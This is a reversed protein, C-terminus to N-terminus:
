WTQLGENRHKLCILVIYFLITKNPFPPSCPIRSSNTCLCLFYLIVASFPQVATLRLSPDKVPFAACQAHVLISWYPASPHLKNSCHPEPSWGGTFQAALVKERGNGLFFGFFILRVLGSLFDNVNSNKSPTVTIATLPILLTCLFRCCLLLHKSTHWGTKCRGALTPVPMLLSARLCTVRLWAECPPLWEDSHSMGEEESRFFASRYVDHATQKTDLGKDSLETTKRAYNGSSTTQFFLKSENSGGM